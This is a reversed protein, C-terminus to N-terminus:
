KSCGSSCAAAATAFGPAGLADWYLGGQQDAPVRRRGAQPMADAAGITEGSLALWEGVRGPCRSSTAAAWTPFLGIITEPMAMKTRETM